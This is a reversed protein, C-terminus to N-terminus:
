PVVDIFVPGVTGTDPLGNCSEFGTCASAAIFQGTSLVTVIM